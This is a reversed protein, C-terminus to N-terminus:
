NFTPNQKSMRRMVWAILIVFVGFGSTKLFSVRLKPLMDTAIAQRAETDVLLQIADGEQYPLSKFLDTTDNQFYTNEGLKYEISIRQLSSSPLDEIEKVIGTVKLTDEDQLTNLLLAIGILFIIIGVIAVLKSVVHLLRATNSNGTEPDPQIFQQFKDLM